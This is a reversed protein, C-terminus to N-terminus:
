HSIKKKALYVTNKLDTIKVKLNGATKPTFNFRISPMESLSFGTEAVILPQDNFRIDFQTVYFAPIYHGTTGNMQLGNANPHSIIVQATTEQGITAKRMRIQIRGLSNLLAQGDKSSPASCGGSAIVFQEVMYLRNDNMEAIVRVNSFSDMRIRTSLDIDGLAPSIHFVAAIAQPNNDVILYLKKIHHQQTQEAVSKIRVPMVAADEIREPLELKLVQHANEEIHRDTFHQLRLQQWAESYHRQEAHLTMSFTLSFIAFVAFLSRSFM